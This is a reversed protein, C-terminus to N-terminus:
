QPIFTEQNDSCGAETPQKLLLQIMMATSSYFSLIM